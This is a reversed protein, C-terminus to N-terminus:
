KQLRNLRHWNMFQKLEDTLYNENIRMTTHVNMFTQNIENLKNSIVIKGSEDFTILGKDFLKDHNPCLCLGNNINVKEMDNSDKWPKIHSAILLEKLTVGCLCCKNEFKQLIIDRFESQGIRAKALIEKERATVTETYEPIFDHKIKNLYTLVKEDTANDMYCLNRGKFNDITFNRMSKPLLIATDTVVNFDTYLRNEPKTPLYQLNKYVKANLYFGIVIKKKIMWVVTVDDVYDVSKPVNFNKHIDISEGTNRIYGYFNGDVATFNNVEHGIKKTNYAGGGMPKEAVAGDYREMEGINCYIFKM